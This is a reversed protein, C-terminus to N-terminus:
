VDALLNTIEQGFNIFENVIENFSLDSEEECKEKLKKLIPELDLVMNNYDLREMVDVLIDKFFYAGVKTKLYELFTYAITNNGEWRIYSLLIEERLFKVKMDDMCENDTYKDRCNITYNFAYVLENNKDTAPTIIDENILWRIFNENVEKLEFFETIEEKSKFELKLVM